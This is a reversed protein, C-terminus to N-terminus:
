KKHKPFAVGSRVSREKKINAVKSFSKGKLSGWVNTNYGFSSKFSMNHAPFNPNKDWDWTKMIECDDFDHKLNEYTIYEVGGELPKSWFGPSQQTNTSVHFKGTHINYMDYGYDLLDKVYGVSEKIKDERSRKGKQILPTYEFLVNEVNGSQLLKKAGAFVAPEFGEVDVKLACIKTNPPIVDDLSEKKVEYSHHTNHGGHELVGSTGWNGRKPARITETGGSVEATIYPRISILDTFDNMAVSAEFFQRYRPIPEWAISKCGYSASLLSYWGLNGGVDLVTGQIGDRMCCDSLIKSWIRTLGIEILRRDALQLSVDNDIKPDTFAVYFEHETWSRVVRMALETENADELEALMRWSKFFDPKEKKAPQSPPEESRQVTQVTGPDSRVITREVSTPPLTIIVILIVVFYIRLEMNNGVM